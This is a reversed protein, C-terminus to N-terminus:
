YWFGPQFCGCEGCAVTDYEVFSYAGDGYYGSNDYFWAYRPTGSTVDCPAVAFSNVSRFDGVETSCTYPCCNVSRGYLAACARYAEAETYTEDITTDLWEPL